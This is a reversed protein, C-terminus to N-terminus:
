EVRVVLTRMPAGPLPIQSLRIARPGDAEVRVQCSDIPGATYAAQNRNRPNDEDVHRRLLCRIVGTAEVEHCFGDRAPLVVTKLEEAVEEALVVLHADCASQRAAQRRRAEVMPDHALVYVITGVGVTVITLLGLWDTKVNTTSRAERLM